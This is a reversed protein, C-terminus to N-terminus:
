RKWRPGRQRGCPKVLSISAAVPRLQFLGALGDQGNPSPWQEVFGEAYVWPTPVQASCVKLVGPQFANAEGTRMQLSCGQDARVQFLCPQLFDVEISRPEVAGM